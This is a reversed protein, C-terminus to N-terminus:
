FVEKGLFGENFKRKDFVVNGLVITKEVVGKLRKGSFASWGCKSFIGKNSVMSSKALDLVCLDADFGEEIRGKRSLGFIKAPNKCLLESVRELSVKKKSAADLLLPLMTQTGPMGSPASWYPLKKEAMTHPAHDSAITDVTGDKIGKWLALRDKEGKISPNVKGLNGLREIDKENLFLHHPTVECYVNEQVEKAERILGIGDKSSVHCFYLANKTKKQIELLRKIEASEAKATRIKSHIMAGSRGHMKKENKGIIENSEAHVCAPIKKERCAEFAKEIERDSELLLSGTSSGTFIKVSVIKKANMIEKENGSVAGFHFGYNVLATKSVIKRKESLAKATITPPDNNPMDLATTVGGFLASRSAFLWDEKQENGPVRFHVHSDIIGPFVTKGFCDITKKAQMKQRSIKEIVTGSIAINKEAIRGDLAVLANELVIDFM